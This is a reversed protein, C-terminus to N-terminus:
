NSTLNFHFLANEHKCTSNCNKNMSTIEAFLFPYVVSFTTVSITDAVVCKLSKSTSSVPADRYTACHEVPMKLYHSM